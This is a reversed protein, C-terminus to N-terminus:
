WIPARRPAPAAHARRDPGDRRVALALAQSWVQALFDRLYDQSRWRRSRADAAAAHLAAARATRVGQRRAAVGARRAGAVDGETQQAIFAELLTLKAAYVEVQDFDGEIIEQVLERVRALFQQGPGDDFDDFACALSAIRNVFRRM